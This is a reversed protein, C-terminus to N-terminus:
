LLVGHCSDAIESLDHKQNLETQCGHISSASNVVEDSVSHVNTSNERVVSPLEMVHPSPTKFCPDLQELKAIYQAKRRKKTAIARINEEIAIQLEPDSKQQLCFM